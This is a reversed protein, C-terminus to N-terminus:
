KNGDKHLIENITMNNDKIKQQLLEIQKIIDENEDTLNRVLEIEKSPILGLFSCLKTEILKNDTHHIRLLPIGSEKCYCGKMEDHIQTVENIDHYGGDYEILSVLNDFEDLIAFDFRLRRRSEGIGHLDSFSYEQKFNFNNADLFEYVKKAYKSLSCYPCKIADDNYGKVKTFRKDPSSKINKNCCDCNWYYEDSITRTIDDTLEGNKETDWQNALRPNTTRLPTAIRNRGEKRLDVREKVESYIEDIIFKNGDKHYSFHCNWEKFQSLKTNGAEITAGLASCLQRYSKFVLGEHLNEYSYVKTM